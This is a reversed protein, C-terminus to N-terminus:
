NPLAVCNTALAEIFSLTNMNQLLLVQTVATGADNRNRKYASICLFTAASSPSAPAVLQVRKNVFADRVSDDPADIKDLSTSTIAAQLNGDSWLVNLGAADVIGFLPGNVTPARLTTGVAPSVIDGVSIAM